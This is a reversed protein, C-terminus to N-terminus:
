VRKNRWGTEPGRHGDRNSSDFAIVQFHARADLRRGYRRERKLDVFQQVAEFLARARPNGGIRARIDARRERAVDDWYARESDRYGEVKKTEIQNIRKEWYDAQPLNNIEVKHYGEDVPMGAAPPVSIKNPDDNSVWIEIPDFKKANMGCYYLLVPDFLQKCKICKAEVSKRGDRILFYDGRYLTENCNPCTM